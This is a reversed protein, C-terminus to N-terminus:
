AGLFVRRIDPDARLESAGGDRHNRGDVLVYARDAMGLAALANQEIIAVAVGDDAIQRVAEFMQAAARPAMGASPEDLLVLVPESMLALGLALIQRQGGSLTRAPLDKKEALIPFRALIAERRQKVQTPELYAAMELNELITLSPFVNREQPVYALGRATVQRPRLGGIDENRLRIRGRKPALLGAVAKLLTSKGAGNPGIVAVVEGSGVSLDVGKLVEDAAGYGAVLGEVQLVM